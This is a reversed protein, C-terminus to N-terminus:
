SRSRKEFVKGRGDMLTVSEVSAGIDGFNGGANMKVAGGFSGPIGTLAELGALGKRVCGLVLKNLNVGAGATVREGDFRMQEFEDRTLKIVAGRIGEDKILLNSGFGLVYMPVDNESCRRAVTKLQEVDRPTVVYDATGGLGFWTYDRLSRNSDVIDELGSFISM